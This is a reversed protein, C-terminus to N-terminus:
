GEDRRVKVTLQYPFYSAPFHEKAYAVHEAFQKALDELEVEEIWTGIYDHPDDALEPRELYCEFTPGILRGHVLHYVKM